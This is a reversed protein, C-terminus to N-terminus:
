DLVEFRVIWDLRLELREDHQDLAILWEAPRRTVLDRPRLVEVFAPGQPHRWAVRLRQRCVVARELEAYRDCSIPEYEERM